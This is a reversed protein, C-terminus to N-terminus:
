LPDLVLSNNVSLIVGTSACGYSIEEIAIAYDMTTLAAGGLEKSVMMGTLGMEACKSVVRTPFEHRADWSSAHPLIEQETFERISDRLLKQSDNLEFKMTPGM